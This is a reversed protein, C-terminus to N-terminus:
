IFNKEKNFNTIFDNTKFLPFISYLTEQLIKTIGEFSIAFSVYSLILLYFFFTSIFSAVRAPMLRVYTRIIPMLLVCAISFPNSCLIGAFCCARCTSIFSANTSFDGVRSGFSSYISFTGSIPGFVFYCCGILDLDTLSCRVDLGYVFAFYPM